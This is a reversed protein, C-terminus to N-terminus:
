RLSGLLLWTGVAGLFLGGARSAWPGFPAIKEIVVFVTLAGIVYANMVGGAFLLLMLAWCCGLCDLGHRLGMRFAGAAGARWYRTLLSIPSRCAQLCNRKLPTFQYVGVGLLLAAGLRPDTLAMMPSVVSANALARQGIAAAASFAAWTALYGAALLWTRRVALSPESRRVVGMYLMLMPTAGPLMMAVMMVTWMAFLLAMHAPDRGASMAWASAGTMPGYMDASMALIWGWSVACVLVVGAIVIRRDHRLATELLTSQPEAASPM